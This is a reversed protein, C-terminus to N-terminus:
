IAQRFEPGSTGVSAWRPRPVYLARILLALEKGAALKALCADAGAEFSARRYERNDEELLVIIKTEPMRAKILRLTELTTLGPLTIDMVVVDPGLQLAKALADEGCCAEGVLESEPDCALFEKLLTRFPLYDDAVLTKISAM